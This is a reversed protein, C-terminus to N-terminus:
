QETCTMTLLSEKCEFVAKKAPKKPFCSTGGAQYGAVYICQMHPASKPTFELVSPDTDLKKEIDYQRVDLRITDAALAPSCALALILAAFFNKM